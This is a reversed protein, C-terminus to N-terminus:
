SSPAHVERRRYRRWVFGLVCGFFVGALHGPKPYGAFAFDILFPTFYGGFQGSV